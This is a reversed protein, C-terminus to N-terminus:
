SDGQATPRTSEVEQHREGDNSQTGLWRAPVHPLLLKTLIPAVLYGVLLGIAVFVASGAVDIVHHIGAGVRAWDVLGGLALFVLAVRLDLLLVAAVIGAALLGHDSPFGNDAAHSILPRVHDQTFPRPDNYAAAGVQALLYALVLAIGITIAWRLAAPRPQRYLSFAAYAAALAADIFVLYQAAFLTLDTPVLDGRPTIM